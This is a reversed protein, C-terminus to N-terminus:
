RGGARKAAWERKALTNAATCEACPTESRRRHAVYGGATGHKIPRPNRRRGLALDKRNDATMGGWTGHAIRHHLAYALCPKQVPCEGCIQKARITHEVHGQEPFFLDPSTLGICAAQRQWTLDNPNPM